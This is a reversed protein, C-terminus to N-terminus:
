PLGPATGGSRALEAALAKFAATGAGRPVVRVPVMPLFRAVAAATEAPPVPSTQSESLVIASIWIGRASLYAAATFVHSLTGLYTGAVLVAPLSLAAAWDAVVWQGDLPVAVGGVGEILLLDPAAAMAARCFELVAPMPVGRGERAAAMDPSLPAAFRWPSIAAINGRTVPRGMAALLKAPDSAAEGGPAYGSLVPKIAAVQRGAAAAARLIGATVHTKGVDTGTGTVFYAAM